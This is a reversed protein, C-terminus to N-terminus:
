YFHLGFYMFYIVSCSSIIIKKSIFVVLNAVFNNYLLIPFISCMSLIGVEGTQIGYQQFLSEYLSMLGSMGTAACARADISLPRGGNVNQSLTQRITVNKLAQQRMKQKGFAVAGSTVLICERGQNCLESLQEVISALRGLALGCEDQRTIVASGLKVVVRKANVLDSRHQALVNRSLSTHILRRSVTHFGLLRM